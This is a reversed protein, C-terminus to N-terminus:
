ELELGLWEIQLDEDEQRRIYDLAVDEDRGRLPCSHGELGSLSEACTAEVLFEIGQQKVTVMGVITAACVNIGPQWM